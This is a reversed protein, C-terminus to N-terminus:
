LLLIPPLGGPYLLTQEFTPSEPYFSPSPPCSSINFAQNFTPSNPCSPPLTSRWNNSLISASQVQEQAIHSTLTFLHDKIAQPMNYMCRAAIHNPRGCRHCGHENTTDCWRFGKDDVMGDSSNGNGNGNRNGQGHGDGNGNRGYSGNKGKGHSYYAAASHHHTSSYDEASTSSNLLSKMDDLTPEIKQALLTTRIPHFSPDLNMLLLDKFETEEVTCGLAALKQKASTLAQIYFSVPKSPDHVVAYLEKRAQMRLGMTSRQFHAKLAQFAAAGSELDDLLYLYEDDVKSYIYATIQRDIKTWSALEAPDTPSSGSAIGTVGAGLFFMKMGKNWEHWNSANLNPVKSLLAIIGSTLNFSM